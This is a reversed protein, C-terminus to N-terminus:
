IGSSEKRSIKQNREKQQNKKEKYDNRNNKGDVSLNTNVM